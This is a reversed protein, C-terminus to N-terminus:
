GRKAAGTSTTTFVTESRRRTQHPPASTGSATGVLGFWNTWSRERDSRSSADDGDDCAAGAPAGLGDIDMFSIYGSMRKCTESAARVDFARCEPHTSMSMNPSHLPSHTPSSSTSSPSSAHAHPFAPTTSPITRFQSSSAHNHHQHTAADNALVRRLETVSMTNRRHHPPSSMKVLYSTHTITPQATQALPHHFLFTTTPHGQNFTSSFAACTPSPPRPKARGRHRAKHQSWLISLFPGLSAPVFVLSATLAL